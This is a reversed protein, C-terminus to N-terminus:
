TIASLRSASFAPQSRAKSPRSSCYRVSSSISKSTVTVPNSRGSISRNALQRKLCVVIISCVGPPPTPIRFFGNTPEIFMEVDAQGINQGNRDWRVIFKEYTFPDSNGWNVILNDEQQYAAVVMNAGQDPSWAIEGHQFVSKRGNRGPVGAEPSIACGLPGKEADLEKWRQLILGVPMIPCATPIVVPPPDDLILASCFDASILLFAAATLHFLPKLLM